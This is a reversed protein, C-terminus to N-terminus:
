KTKTAGGKAAGGATGSSKGAGAGAGAGSYLTSMKQQMEMQLKYQTAPSQMSAAQQSIAMVRQQKAMALQMEQRKQQQELALIAQDRQQQFQNTAMTINRDCEAKIMDVQTTYQHGIMKLQMTAQGNLAETADKEQQTITAVDMMGHMPQAGYGQPMQGYAPPVYSM